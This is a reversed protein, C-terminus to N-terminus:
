RMRPQELGSSRRAKRKAYQEEMWIIADMWGERYGLIVPERFVPRRSVIEIQAETSQNGMLRARVRAARVVMAEPPVIEASM